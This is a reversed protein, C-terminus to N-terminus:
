EKGEVWKSFDGYHKFWSNGYDFSEQQCEEVTKDAPKAFGAGPEGNTSVVISTLHRLGKDLCFSQVVGLHGKTQEGAHGDPYRLGDRLSGYTIKTGQIAAVALITWTQLDRLACLARPDCTDNETM